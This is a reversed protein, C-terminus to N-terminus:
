YLDLGSGPTIMDDDGGPTVDENQEVIPSKEENDFTSRDDFRRVQSCFCCLDNLNAAVNKLCM